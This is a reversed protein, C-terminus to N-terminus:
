GYQNPPHRRPLIGSGGGLRHPRGPCDGPRRGLDWLVVSRGTSTALLEGDPHWAASSVAALALYTQLRPLEDPLATGWGAVAVGDPLRAGTLRARRWSAGALRADSLDAGILSAGDLCAGSLNAGTLDARDLRAGTLNAASLDAGALCVGSLGAETLDAGHFRAGSLNEDAPFVQGRLNEGTYETLRLDLALGHAQFDRLLARANRKSWDSM